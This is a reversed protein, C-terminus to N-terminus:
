VNTGIERGQRGLTEEPHYENRRNYSRSFLNEKLNLIPIREKSKGARSLSKIFETKESLGIPPLPFPLLASGGGSIVLILVDNGGLNSIYNCIKKAAYFSNEDPINDNAGELITLKESKIM